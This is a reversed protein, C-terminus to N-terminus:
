DGKAAATSAPISLQNMYRRISAPATTYNKQKVM